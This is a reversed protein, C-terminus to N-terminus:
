PTFQVREYLDALSLSTEIEPLPIMADLASHREITFGGELLRRYLTIAPHIRAPLQHFAHHFSFSNVPSADFGVNRVSDNPSVRLIQFEASRNERVLM